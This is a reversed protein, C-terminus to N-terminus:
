LLPEGADAPVVFLEDLILASTTNTGDLYFVLGASDIESLLPPNLPLIDDDFMEGNRDTASLVLKASPYEAIRESGSWLIASSLSMSFRDIWGPERGNRVSIVSGERRVPEFTLVTDDRWLRASIVSEPYFGRNLVPENEDAISPEFRIRGEWVEGSGFIPNERTHTVAGRFGWTIADCHLGFRLEDIREVVAAVAEGAVFDPPSPEGDMRDLADWLQDCAAAPDGAVALNGASEIMNRLAGLREPGSRGPGLGWLAGAGELSDITAIIDAADALPAGRIEVTLSQLRASGNSTSLEFSASGNRLLRRAPGTENTTVEDWPESSLNSLGASGPGFHVWYTQGPDVLDDVFSAHFFAEEISGFSFGFDVSVQV